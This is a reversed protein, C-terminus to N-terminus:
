KKDKEENKTQKMEVIEQPGFYLDLNMKAPKQVLSKKVRKGTVPIPFSRVSNEKQLNYYGAVVGVYKAGDTRDLTENLARAPQVVLRRSYTVGPDFRGCELLRPLGDKEDTLQNFGNLDKLHYVCVVLSHARKQYLNLDPDGTFNLSIANKEYAWDPPLIIKPKSSCSLFIAAIPVLLLAHRLKKMLAGKLKEIGLFTLIQNFRGKNPHYLREAM